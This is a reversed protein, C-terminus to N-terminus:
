VVVAAHAEAIRGLVAAGDDRHLHLVPRGAALNCGRQQLQKALLGALLDAGLGLSFFGLFTSLGSGERRGTWGVRGARAGRIGRGDLAERRADFQTSPGELAELPQMDDMWRDADGGGNGHIERQERNNSMPIGGQDTGHSGFSREDAHRANAAFPNLTMCYM